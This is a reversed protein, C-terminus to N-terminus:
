KIKLLPRIKDNFVSDTNLSDCISQLQEKQLMVFIKYREYNKDIQENLISAVTKMAPYRNNYVAMDLIFEILNQKISEDTNVNVLIKTFRAYEDIDSFQIYESTNSLCDIFNLSLAVVSDRNYSLVQTLEQSRIQRLVHGWDTWPLRM